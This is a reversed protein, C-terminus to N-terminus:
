DMSVCNTLNAYMTKKETLRRYLVDQKISGSCNRSAGLKGLKEFNACAPSVEVFNIKSQNRGGSM